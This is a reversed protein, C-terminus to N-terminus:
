GLGVTYGYANSSGELSGTVSGQSNPYASGTLVPFMYTEVTTLGAVVEVTTNATTAMFFLTKLRLSADFAGSPALTFRNGQGNANLVGNHTFGVAVYGPGNNKIFLTSTVLPFNLNAVSSTVVSVARAFPLGSVQYEAVSAPGSKPNQM